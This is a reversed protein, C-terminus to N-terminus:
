TWVTNIINKNTNTIKNLIHPNFYIIFVSHKLKINDKTSSGQGNLNDHLRNSQLVLLPHSVKPLWSNLSEIIMTIVNPGTVFNNTPWVLDNSKIWDGSSMLFHLHDSLSLKLISKNTYIM